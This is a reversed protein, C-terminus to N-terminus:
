PRQLADAGGVGPLLPELDADPSPDLGDSSPTVARAAIGELLHKGILEPAPLDIPYVGDFCARCLRNRPQESAAVLGELSVYGLSDAGISARIGDV